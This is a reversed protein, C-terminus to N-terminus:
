RLQAYSSEMQMMSKADNVNFIVRYRSKTITSVSMLNAALGPVHLVNEATNFM